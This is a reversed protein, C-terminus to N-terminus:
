VELELFDFTGPQGILGISAVECSLTFSLWYGV